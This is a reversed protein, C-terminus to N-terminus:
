LRALVVVDMSIKLRLLIRYFKKYRGELFELSVEHPKNVEVWAKFIDSNPWIKLEEYQSQSMETCGVASCPIKSDVWCLGGNPLLEFTPFGM